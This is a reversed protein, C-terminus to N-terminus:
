APKLQACWLSIQIASTVCRGIGIIEILAKLDQTLLECTLRNEAAIVTAENESVAPDTVLVADDVEL